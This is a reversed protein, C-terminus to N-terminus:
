KVEIIKKSNLEQALQQKMTPIRDKKMHNSKLYKRKTEKKEEEGRRRRGRRKGKRKGM